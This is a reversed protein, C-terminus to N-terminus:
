VVSSATPRPMLTPADHTLTYWFPGVLSRGHGDMGDHDGAVWHQVVRSPLDGLEVVLQARECVVHELGHVRGFPHAERGVLDAEVQPHEDVVAGVVLAGAV